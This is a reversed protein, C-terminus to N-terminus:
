GAADMGQFVLLLSYRDSAYLREQLEDLRELGADLHGIADDKDKFRATDRPDITKLVGDDDRQVRFRDVNMAAITDGARGDAVSHLRTARSRTKERYKSLLSDHGPQRTEPPAAGTRAAVLHIPLHPKMELLPGVGEDPRAARRVLGRPPRAEL